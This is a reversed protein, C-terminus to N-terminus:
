KKVDRESVLIMEFGLKKLAQFQEDSITTKKTLAFFAGEYDAPVRRDRGFSSKIYYRFEM